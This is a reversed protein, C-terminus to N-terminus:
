TKNTSCRLSRFCNIFPNLKTQSLYTLFMAKNVLVIIFIYRINMFDYISVLISKLLNNNSNSLRGVLISFFVVIYHNKEIKQITELYLKESEGISSWM